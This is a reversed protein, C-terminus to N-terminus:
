KSLRDVVVMITTYGRSQPLGTVFDMSVDEWVQTPVSLPQLPGALKQTSYMTTQCVVCAEVFRKVERKMQLWYFDGAVRRLTREFGPHGASQSCHYETLIPIRASSRSSVFIRRRYYVLGDVWSLHAPAKGEHIKQTIERM